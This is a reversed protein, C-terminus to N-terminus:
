DGTYLTGDANLRPTIAISYEGNGRETSVVVYNVGTDSDVVVLTHYAGNTNQGWIKLPSTQEAAEAKACCGILMLAMVACLAICILRKYDKVNHLFRNKLEEM